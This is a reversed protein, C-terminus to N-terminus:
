EVLLTAPLIANLNQPPWCAALRNEMLAAIDGIRDDRIFVGVGKRAIDQCTVAAYIRSQRRAQRRQAYTRRHSFVRRHPRIRADSKAAKFRWASMLDIPCSSFENGAGLSASVLGKELLPGDEGIM